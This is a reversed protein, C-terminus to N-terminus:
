DRPYINLNTRNGEAKEGIISSDDGKIHNQLYKKGQFM